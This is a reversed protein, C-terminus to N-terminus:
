QPQPMLEIRDTDFGNEALWAIIEEYRQSDM